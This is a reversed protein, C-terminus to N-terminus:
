SNGRFLRIVWMIVDFMFLAFIVPGVLSLVIVLEAVPFFLNIKQMYKGLELLSILVSDSFGVSTGLTSFLILAFVAVAGVGLLNGVASFM